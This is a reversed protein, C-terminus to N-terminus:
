IFEKSAIILSATWTHRTWIRGSRGLWTQPISEGDHENHVVKSILDAIGPDDLIVDTEPGWYSLTDIFDERAKGNWNCHINAFALYLSRVLDPYKNIIEVLEDSNFTETTLRRKINSLIEQHSSNSPDLAASLSTYELGLRNLFQQVFVWVCHAYVTEQLSLRGAIFHNRFKNKPICCLLSVEKMIQHISTEIPPYKYSIDHQKSPRLYIFMITIGNSFQEVHKRSSVLGYYHFLDSLSSFLGAISGQRYAIVLRKERRSGKIDFTEIVPGTRGVAHDMMEQYIKKTGATAKQLFRTDGIQDLETAESGPNRHKFQCKYVFHYKFSQEDSELDDYLDDHPLPSTLQFFEVRYKNGANSGDLYRDDIRQEYRSSAVHDTAPQSADIYVAHDDAERDFM